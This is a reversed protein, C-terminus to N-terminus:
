RLSKEYIESMIKAVSSAWAPNTCYKTNVGILNFGNFFKGTSTLYDTALKNAVFNIAIEKSDFYYAHDPNSTYAGYGFLNNRQRAYHSTGWASELAAVSALFVANVGYTKEAAVFTNGLGKLGAKLGKELQKGTLGSPRRLDDPGQYNADFQKKRNEEEKKRREEEKKREEAERQEKKYGYIEDLYAEGGQALEYQEQLNKQTTRNNEKTIKAAISNDGYGNVKIDDIKDKNEEMEVVINKKSIPKAANEIFIRGEQDIKYIKDDVTAVEEPRFFQNNNQITTYAYFGLSLLFLVMLIYQVKTM